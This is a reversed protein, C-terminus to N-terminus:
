IAGTNTKIIDLDTNAITVNPMITLSGGAASTSIAANANNFLNFLFGGTNDFTFGTATGANITWAGTNSNTVQGISIQSGAVASDLTLTLATAATNYNAIDGAANPVGTDWTATQWGTGTSVIHKVPAAPAAQGLMLSVFIL